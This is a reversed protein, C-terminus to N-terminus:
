ATKLQKLAQIGEEKDYNNIACFLDFVSHTANNDNFINSMGFDYIMGSDGFVKSSYTSSSGVRKLLIDSGSVDHYEYLGTGVMMDAVESPKTDEIFQAVLRYDSAHISKFQERKVFQYDLGYGIDLLFEYEEKSFVGIKDGHIKKYDPHFIVGYSGEFRTEIICQRPNGLINRSVLDPDLGESIKKKYRNFLEEITLARHTVKRSKDTYTGDTRAWVHFGGSRTQNVRMRKKMEVPVQNMFNKWYDQFILQKDLDFDICFLKSQSGTIAALGGCNGYTEEIEQDTVFANQLHKWFIKPLKSGDEKLPVTNIGRARLQYAENRYDM